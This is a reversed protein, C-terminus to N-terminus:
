DIIFYTKVQGYIFKISFLRLIDLLLKLLVTLKVTLKENGNYM